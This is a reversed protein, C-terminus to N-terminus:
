GCIKPMYGMELDQNPSVTGISTEVFSSLFTVISVIQQFRCPKVVVLQM